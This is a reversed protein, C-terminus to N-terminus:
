KTQYVLKKILSDAKQAKWKHTDILEKARKKYKPTDARKTALNALATHKEARDKLAALLDKYEEGDVNFEKHSM